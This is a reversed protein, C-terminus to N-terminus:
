FLSRRGKKEADSCTSSRQVRPVRGSRRSPPPGAARVGGDAGEPSATARDARAARAPGAAPPRRGVPAQRPLPPADQPPPASSVLPAVVRAVERAIKTPTCKPRRSAGPPPRSRSGAGVRTGPSRPATMWTRHASRRTSTRPPRWRPSTLPPASRPAGSSPSTRTWRATRPTAASSPASTRPSRPRLSPATGSSSTTLATSTWAGPSTPASSPSSPPSSRPPPPFRAALRLFSRGRAPPAHSGSIDRPRHPRTKRELHTVRHPRDARPPRHAAASWLLRGHRDERARDDAPHWQRDAHARREERHHLLHPRHRRAIRALCGARRPRRPRRARPSSHGSRGFRGRRWSASSDPM